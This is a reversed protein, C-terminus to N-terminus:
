EAFFQEYLQEGVYRHFAVSPHADRNSVMRDQPTWAAAENFLKLIDTHGRAEFVQAVRDTYPISEVPQRMDPFIVVILRAGISEVHDIFDNLEQQHVEWIGVNDYSEFNYQQANFTPPNIVPVVRHFVFNGLHSQMAWWPALPAEAQLGLKLQAYNIDNLYYQLIVVDPNQLPHNQLLALEEPTARGYEGINIVAYEDGLKSALVDGFRDERQEIGWGVTFSDGVLMVTNKGEWDAPTWERDRFGLSNTEWYRDLWNNTAFSLVNESQAFFYRLYIEAGGVLLLVMTYSILMNQCFTRVWRVRKQAAGVILAVGVGLFCLVLITMTM